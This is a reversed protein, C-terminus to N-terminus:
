GIVSETRARTCRTGCRAAPSRSSVSAGQGEKGHIARNLVPTRATHLKWSEGLSEFDHEARSKTIGTGNDRIVISELGGLANRVLDVSTRAADADLANWVFESIAKIFDRTSAVKQLHDNKAKLTLVVM